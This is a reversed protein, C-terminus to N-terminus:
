NKCWMYVRDAKKDTRVFSKLEKMQTTATTNRAVTKTVGGWGRV